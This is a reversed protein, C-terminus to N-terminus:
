WIEKGATGGANWEGHRHSRKYRTLLEALRYRRRPHVLRVPELDIVSGVAIRRSKAFQRPIVVAMSSGWKKVEAPTAM